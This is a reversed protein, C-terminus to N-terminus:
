EGKLYNSFDQDIFGAYKKPNNRIKTGSLGDEERPVYIVRHNPYVEKLKEAYNAEGTYWTFNGVNPDVKAQEFLEKGWITWAETSFTGTLGMKKDDMLVVTVNPNNKFKNKVLEFRTRFPIFDKGRDDDYGCVGLIVKDNEKIARNILAIHGQHLPIFCGFMIGYM